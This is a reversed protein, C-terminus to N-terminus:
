LERNGAALVPRYNVRFRDEPLAGKRDTDKNRYRVTGDEIELVEVARWWEKKSRWTAGVLVPGGSVSESFRSLGRASYSEWLARALVENISRFPAAERARVAVVDVEVGGSDLVTLVGVRFRSNLPVSYRPAEKIATEVTGAVGVADARLEEPVAYWVHTTPMVLPWTKWRRKAPDRVLDSRSVKVEIEYLRDVAVGCSGDSRFFENRVPTAVAAIDARSFGDLCCETVGVMSREHLWKLVATKVTDSNM